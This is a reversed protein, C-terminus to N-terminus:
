PCEEQCRAHPAIPDSGRAGDSVQSRNRSSPGVANKCRRFFHANPCFEPAAAATESGLQWTRCNQERICGICRSRAEYWAMGRDARVAAAPDVGVRELMRDLLDAHDLIRRLMPRSFCLDSM